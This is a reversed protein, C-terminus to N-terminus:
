YPFTLGDAWVKLPGEAQKQPNELILIKDSGKQKLLYFEQLDKHTLSNNKNLSPYMSGTQNWLRGADDFTLDIPNIVLNKESAVLEIVYGEKL